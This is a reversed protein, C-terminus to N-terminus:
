TEIKSLRNSVGTVRINKIKWGMSESKGDLSPEYILSQVCKFCIDSSTSLFESEPNSMSKETFLTSSGREDEIVRLVVLNIMAYSVLKLLSARADCTEFFESFWDHTAM